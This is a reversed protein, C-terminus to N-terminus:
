TAASVLGILQRMPETASNAGSVSERLAIQIIYRATLKCFTCM